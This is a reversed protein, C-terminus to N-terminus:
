PRNDPDDVRQPPVHAGLLAILQDVLADLEAAVSSIEPSYYSDFMSTPKEIVFKTDGDRDAYIISRLPAHLMVAPDHRFMREAITHNGILYHTAKWMSSPSSAMVATLDARYYRMLGYPANIEALELAAQWTAMQFFRPYDVEPVLAEFLMRAEDFPQPLPLVLRRTLHDIVEPVTTM